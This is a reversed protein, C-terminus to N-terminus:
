SGDGAFQVRKRWSTAIWTWVMVVGDSALIILAPELPLRAKGGGTFIMAGAVHFMVLTWLLYHIPLFARNRAANATGVLAMMLVGYFALMSILSLGSLDKKLRADLLDLLKLWAYRVMLAPNDRINRLALERFKAERQIESLGTLNPISIVDWRNNFDANSSPFTYFYLTFGTKTTIPVFAHQVAYNRVTWPMVPILVGLLVFVCALIQSRRPRARSVVLTLVLVVPLFWLLMGRTLCGLAFCCGSVFYWGWRSGSKTARVWTWMFTLLFFIFLTETMLLGTFYVFAPYVAGVLIAIAARKSGWVENAVLGILGVTMTSLLAQVARALVHSEHGLAAYIGALFFPYLPEQFSTPQYPVSTYYASSSFTFGRGSLLNRAIDHYFPEDFTLTSPLVLAYGVRIAAALAIGAIVALSVITLKSKSEPRSIDHANSVLEATDEM